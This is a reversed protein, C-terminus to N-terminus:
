HKICIYALRLLSPSSFDRDLRNSASVADPVGAAPTLFANRSPRHASVFENSSLSAFGYSRTKSSRRYAVRTLSALTRVRVTPVRRQHSRVQRPSATGKGAQTSLRDSCSCAGFGPLDESCLSRERWRSRRLSGELDICFSQALPLYFCGLATHRQHSRSYSCRDMGEPTSTHGSHATSWRRSAGFSLM